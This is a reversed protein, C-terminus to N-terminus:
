YNWYNYSNILLFREMKLEVMQQQKAARERTLNKLDMVSIEGLSLESLYANILQDYQSLQENVLTERDKISQIERIIKNQQIDTKRIFNMRNFEITNLNINTIQQQIDRQHGDFITWTFSLGTSFGLRDPTPLYSANLGANAFWSLRPKYKQEFITQEALLNLSDLRFANVFKSATVPAINMQFDPEAIDSLATDEIGCILNLDYINKRYDVQSNKYAEQYNTREIQILMRDTQKYVAQDVLKTMVALQDDMRELLLRNNESEAKAKLCLIYQYGVLQEIEHITLIRNNDNIERSIDAKAEYSDLISGVILPKNIGVGAQYSGGDTLALDYGYYDTAGDSVWEFRPHGNDNSVIPAFMLNADVYIEPKSLVNKVQKMDLSIIEMENASQHLLPSNLEAQELYYDLNRPQAQLLLSVSWLSIFLISTKM